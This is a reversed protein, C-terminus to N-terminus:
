SRWEMNTAIEGLNIKHERGFPVPYGEFASDSRSIYSTYPHFLVREGTGAGPIIDEVYLHWVKGFSSNKKFEFEGRENSRIMSDTYDGPWGTFPPLLRVEANVVPRGTKDTVVGFVTYEATQSFAALSFLLTLGLIQFQNTPSAIKSM